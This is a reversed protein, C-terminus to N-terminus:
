ARSASTTAFQSTFARPSVPHPTSKKKARSKLSTFITAPYPMPGRVQFILKPSEPSHEGFHKFNLPRVLPTGLHTFDESTHHERIVEEGRQIAIAEHISFGLWMHSVIDISPINEKSRISSPISMGTHQGAESRRRKASQTDTTSEKRANPPPTADALNTIDVRSLSTIAQNPAAIYEDLSTSLQLSSGGHEPTVDALQMDIDPDHFHTAQAKFVLSQSPPLLTNEEGEDDSFHQILTRKRGSHKSSTKTAELNTQNAHRGESGASRRKGEGTTKVQAAKSTQASYSPGKTAAYGGPLQQNKGATHPPDEGCTGVGGTTAGEVDGARTDGTRHSRTSQRRSVLSWTPTSAAQEQTEELRSLPPPMTPPLWTPTFNSLIPTLSSSHTTCSYKYHSKHPPQPPLLCPIKPSIEANPALNPPKKNLQM